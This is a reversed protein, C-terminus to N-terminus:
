SGPCASCSPTPSSSAPRSTATTGCSRAARCRGRARAAAGRDRPGAAGEGRRDVRPAGRVARGGGALRHGQRRPAGRRHLRREARRRHRVLGHRHSAREGDEGLYTAGAAVTVEHRAQLHQRGRHRQAPHGAQRLEPLPRRRPRESTPSSTRRSTGVSTSTASTSVRRNAGAVLNPSRAALADVVVLTDRAGIPSGYGAEM